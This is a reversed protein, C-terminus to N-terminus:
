KAAFMLQLLATRAEIVTDNTLNRRIRVVFDLKALESSNLRFTERIFRKAFNRHVSKPMIRKSAIMGLRAFKHDSDVLHITFWKNILSKQRLAQEFDKSKKIRQGSPFVFSM